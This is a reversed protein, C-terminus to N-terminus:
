DNLWGKRIAYGKTRKNSDEKSTGPDPSKRKRKRGKLRQSLCLKMYSFTAKFEGQLLSYSQVGSRGAEV